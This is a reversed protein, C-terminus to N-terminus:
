ITGQKRLRVLDKKKLGVIRRYVEENDSGAPRGIWKVRPPVERALQSQPTLLVNGYLADDIRRMTGTKGTAVIFQGRGSVSDRYTLAVMIGM